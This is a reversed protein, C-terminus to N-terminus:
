GRERGKGRHCPAVAKGAHPLASLRAPSVAGPEAAGPETAGPDAAGPEAAGPEAAGSPLACGDGSLLCMAAARM